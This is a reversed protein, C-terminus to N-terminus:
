ERTFSCGELLSSISRGFLLLQLSIAAEETSARLFSVGFDDELSIARIKGRLRFTKCIYTKESAM